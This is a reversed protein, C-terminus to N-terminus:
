MAPTESKCLNMNSSSYMPAMCAAMHARRTAPEPLACGALTSLKADRGANLPTALSFAGAVVWQISLCKGFTLGQSSSFDRAHHILPTTSDRVLHTVDYTPSPPPRSTPIGDSATRTPLQTPGPGRVQM